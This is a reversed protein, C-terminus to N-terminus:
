KEHPIDGFYNQKYQVLILRKWLPNDEAYFRWLWKCLLSFNTDEMNSLGLSGRDKLSTVTLWRILHACHGGNKKRACM